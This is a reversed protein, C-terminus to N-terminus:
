RKAEGAAPAVSAELTALAEALAPGPRLAAEDRIARVRGDRVAPVRPFRAWYERVAADRAASAAEGPASRGAMVEPSAEVIADPAMALLAEASVQPWAEALDGAANRCGLAELLAHVYSGGGAVMFPDRQIVLLVRTPPRGRGRERAAALAEEMRRRLARGEEVRGVARALSDVAALLDGLTDTPARLVRVRDGLPALSAETGAANVVVLDPHLAAVREASVQVADGVVPRLRAEAPRDCFRTVGVVADGAGLAFLIETHSPALSVVRRAPATAPPPSGAESCACPVGAALLLALAPIPGCLDRGRLPPGSRPGDRRPRPQADAM